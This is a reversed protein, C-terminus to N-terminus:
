MMLGDEENGDPRNRETDNGNEDRLLDDRSLDNRLSDDKSLDNKLPDNRSSDDTLSDDMTLDMLDNMKDLPIQEARVLMAPVLCTAKEILQNILRYLGECGKRNWCSVHNEQMAKRLIDCVPKMLAGHGGSNSLKKRSKAIFLGRGPPFGAQEMRRARIEDIMEPCRHDIIDCLEDILGVLNCADQGHWEASYSEFHRGLNLKRLHPEAIGRVAQETPIDYEPM